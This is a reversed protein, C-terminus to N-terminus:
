ITCFEHLKRKERLYAESAELATKFYGIHIRKGNIRINTRFRKKTNCFAVGQYGTSNTPFPSRLNQMNQSMTCERLNAIRNDDRIGNIHDIQDKPWAGHIYLWVLRHVLYENGNLCLRLYGLNARTKVLEGIVTKKNSFKCLKIRTFLGTKEDYRLFEKLRCQTLIAKTM